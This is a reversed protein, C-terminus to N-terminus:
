SLVFLSFEMSKGTIKGCSAVEMEGNGTSYVRVETNVIRNYFSNGDRSTMKVEGISYAKSLYLKLFNGAVAGDKVGYITNYNGDHANPPKYNAHYNFSESGKIELQEFLAALILTSIM